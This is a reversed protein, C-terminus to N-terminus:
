GAPRPLEGASRSPERAPEQIEIDPLISRLREYAPWGVVPYFSEMAIRLRESPWDEPLLEPPLGPDIAITSFISEMSSAFSRLATRGSPPRAKFRDVTRQITAAKRRYEAALKPLEWAEAAVTRADERRVRLEVRLIEGGAPVKALTTELGSWRGPWPSVLLGPRLQGFGALTAVRRLMDRYARHREPITYLLGHFVADWEPKDGRVRRALEDMVEISAASLRYYVNRGQRRTEIRGADRLRALAGRAAAESMGLDRMVRVIAGAPLDTRDRGLTGFAFYAYGIARSAAIARPDDLERKRRM